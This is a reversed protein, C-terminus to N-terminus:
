TGSSAGIRRYLAIRVLISGLMAMTALAAAIADLILGSVPNALPARDLMNGLVVAPLPLMIGAFVLLTALGALVLGRGRTMRFSRIVADIPGAGAQAFIPGALLMRGLLYMCPVLIYLFHVWAGAAVDVIVSLIFYAPLRRMAAILVAGVDRKARDDYLMLIVLAGFVTVLAVAIL